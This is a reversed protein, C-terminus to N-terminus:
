REKRKCSVLRSAHSRIWSGCLGTGCGLDVALSFPVNSTEQYSSSSSSQIKRSEALVNAVATALLKPAQYGLSALSADFDLAYSDFLAGLYEASAESPVARVRGSNSSNSKSGSSSSGGGSSSSSTSTSTSNSRRNSSTLTTELATLAHNAIPNRPNVELAQKYLRRAEKQLSRATVAGTGAAAAVAAARAAAVAAAASEPGENGGEEYIASSGGEERRKGGRASSSAGSSTGDALASTGDAIASTGDALVQAEAAVAAEAAAKANENRLVAKRKLTPLFLYILLPFSPLVASILYPCRLIHESILRM